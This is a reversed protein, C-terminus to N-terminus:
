KFRTICKHVGSHIYATTHLQTPMEVPNNREGSVENRHCHTTKVAASVMTAAVQLINKQVM